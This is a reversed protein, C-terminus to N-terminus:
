GYNREMYHYRNTALSSALATRAQWGRQVDVYGQSLPTFRTIVTFCVAGHGSIQVDLRVENKIKKIKM